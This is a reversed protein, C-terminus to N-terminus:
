TGSAMVMEEENTSEKGDIEKKWHERKEIGQEKGQSQERRESIKQEQVPEKDKVKIRQTEGIGESIPTRREM